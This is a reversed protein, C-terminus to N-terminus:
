NFTVHAHVAAVSLSFSLFSFFFNTVWIVTPTPPLVLTSVRRDNAEVSLTDITDNAIASLFYMLTACPSGVVTTATYLQTCREFPADMKAKKPTLKPAIKNKVGHRSGTSRAVYVCRLAAIPRERKGCRRGAVVGVRRVTILTALIVALLSFHFILFTRRLKWIVSESDSKSIEILNRKKELFFFFLGSFPWLHWIKLSSCRFAFACTKLWIKTNIEFRALFKSSPMKWGLTAEWTCFICIKWFQFLNEREFKRVLESDFRSM